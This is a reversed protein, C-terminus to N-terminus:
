PAQGAEPAAVNMSIRNITAKELVVRLMATAQNDAEGLTISATFGEDTVNIRDGEYMVAPNAVGDIGGLLSM